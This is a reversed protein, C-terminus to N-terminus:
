WTPFRQRLKDLKEISQCLLRTYALLINRVSWTSNLPNRAEWYGFLGTPSCFSHFILPINGLLYWPPQWSWFCIGGRYKYWVRPRMYSFCRCSSLDLTYGGALVCSLCWSEPKLVCNKSGSCVQWCLCAHMNAVLNHCRLASCSGIEPRFTLHGQTGKCGFASYLHEPIRRRGLNHCTMGCYWSSWEELPFIVRMTALIGVSDWFLVVSWRLLRSKIYLCTTGGECDCAQWTGRVCARTM